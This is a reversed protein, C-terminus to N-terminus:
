FCSQSLMYFLPVTLKQPLFPLGCNSWMQAFRRIALGVAGVTQGCLGGCLAASCASVKHEFLSPFSASQLPYPWLARFITLFFRRPRKTLILDATRIRGAAGSFSRKEDSFHDKEKSKIVTKVPKFKPKQRQGCFLGCVPFLCAESALAGESARKNM